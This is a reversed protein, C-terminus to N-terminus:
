EKFEVGSYIRVEGEPTVAALVASGKAGTDARLKLTHGKKTERVASMDLQLLDRAFEQKSYEKAQPLQTLLDFIDTARVVRTGKQRAVLPEYARYLIEIMQEPRMGTKRGAHKKLEAAVFSPRVRREKKRDVELAQEAPNIRLISPYCLIRGDRDIPRLDQREIEEILESAYAGSDFHARADFSWTAELATLREQILTLQQRSQALAKELDPLKGTIAATRAQKLLRTLGTASALARDAAEQFASLTAELTGQQTM